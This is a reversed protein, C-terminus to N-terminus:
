QHTQAGLAFRTLDEWDFSGIPLPEPPEEDVLADEFEPRWGGVTAIVGSELYSAVDLNFWVPPTPRRGTGPPRPASLGLYSAQSRLVGLSAMETLDCVQARIVRSWGSFGDLESLDLDERAWYKEFPPAPATLADSIWSLLEDPELAKSDSLDYGTSWWSRLFEELPRRTSSGLRSMALYLDSNTRVSPM